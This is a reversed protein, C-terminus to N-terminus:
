SPNLPIAVFRQGQGSQLRILASRRGDARAATLAERMDRLSAVSRGAVDLIIDGPRIGRQAAPGAPDVETVVMGEGRGAPEVSMGLRPATPAAE